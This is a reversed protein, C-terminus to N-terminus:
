PVLVVRSVQERDGATARVLYVGGSLQGPLRLEHAQGAALNRGLLGLRHGRLDFLEVTAAPLGPPLELRVLSQAGLIGSSAFWSAVVTSPAVGSLDSALAFDLRQWTSGATVTLTQPQYGDCRATVTYSGPTTLRFYMGNGAETLRPGVGPADMEGITVEAVLPEGTDQSTVQGRLGPGAIVRDLLAGSGRAVRVGITDVMAGSWWCHDSIEVIYALIGTKGYVWCQEKPLTSYAYIDNYSNGNEDLTAAAWQEAVDEAVAADPGMGGGGTDFWPWFVYKRWSITVPSHYDVVVLPRKQRVFERVAM